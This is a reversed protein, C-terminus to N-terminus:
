DHIYYEITCNDAGVYLLTVEWPVPLEGFKTFELTQSSLPLMHGTDKWESQDVWVKVGALFPGINRIEVYIKQGGYLFETAMDESGQLRGRVDANQITQQRIECKCNPHVPGPYEEFMLGKMAQCKECADPRPVYYWLTKGTKGATAEMHKPLGFVLQCDGVHHHFRGSM